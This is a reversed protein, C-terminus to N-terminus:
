KFDARFTLGVTRPRLRTVPFSVYDFVAFGSGGSQVIADDNALNQVSLALEYKDWLIGTRLDLTHWPGTDTFPNGAPNLTGVVKGVHQDTLRAYGRL